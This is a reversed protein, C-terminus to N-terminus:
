FPFLCFHRWTSVHKYFPTINNDRIAELLKQRLFVWQASEQNPNKALSEEELNEPPMKFWTQSTRLGFHHFRFFFHYFHLGFMASELWEALSHTGTFVHACDACLRAIGVLQKPEFLRSPGFPWQRDNDIIWQHDNILSQIMSQHWYVFPYYFLM